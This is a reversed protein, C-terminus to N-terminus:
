RASGNAVQPLTKYRFALYVPRGDVFLDKISQVSSNRFNANTALSFRGTIDTWTANQVSSLNSYDGNFDTSVLVSLQNSQTGLEVATRFSLFVDGLRTDVKRGERFAYDRFVEGTFVSILDSKGSLDFKVPEGAKFTNST